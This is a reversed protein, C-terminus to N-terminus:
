LPVAGSQIHVHVPDPLTRILAPMTINVSVLSGRTFVKVVRKRTIDVVSASRLIFVKPRSMGAIGTAFSM